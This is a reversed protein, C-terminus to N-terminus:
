RSAADRKRMEEELVQLKARLECLESCRHCYDNFLLKHAAELIRLDARLCLETQRLWHNEEELSRVRVEGMMAKSLRNGSGGPKGM